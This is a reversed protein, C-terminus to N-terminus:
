DFSCIGQKITQEIISEICSDIIELNQIAQSAWKGEIHQVEDVGTFHITFLQPVKTRDNMFNIVIEKRLSDTLNDAFTYNTV